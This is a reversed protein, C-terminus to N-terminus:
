ELESVTTKLFLEKISDQDYRIELIRGEHLAKEFELALEALVKNQIRRTIKKIELVASDRNDFWSLDIETKEQYKPM